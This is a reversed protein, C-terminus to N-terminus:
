KPYRVKKLFRELASRAASTARPADPTYGGRSYRARADATPQIGICLRAVYTM